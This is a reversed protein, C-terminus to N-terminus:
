YLPDDSVEANFSPLFVHSTNQTIVVITSITQQTFKIDQILHCLVWLKNLHFSVCNSEACLVIAEMQEDVECCHTVCPTLRMM